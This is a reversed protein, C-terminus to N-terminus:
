SFLPYGKDGLIYPFIGDQSRTAMDFIGGHIACQCLKSKRLAYSDNVNKLLGVFVDLFRKQSDVMVQAVINYGGIKHYYFDKLFVGIPKAISIHTGNIAGMVIPM